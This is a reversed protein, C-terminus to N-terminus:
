KKLEIRDKGIICITRQSTIVIASKSSEKAMLFAVTFTIAWLVIVLVVALMPQTKAFFVAAVTLLVPLSAFLAALGPNRGIERCAQLEEGQKLQIKTWPPLKAQAVQQQSISTQTSSTSQQPTYQTTTTHASAAAPPAVPKAPPPQPPPPPKVFALKPQTQTQFVPSQTTIVPPKNPAAEPKKFTAAFPPTSNPEASANLEISFSDKLSPIMGISARSLKVTNTAATSNDFSAAPPQALIGKIAGSDTNLTPPVESVRPIEFVASCETCEAMEGCLEIPVSFVASCGPCSVDIEIQPM